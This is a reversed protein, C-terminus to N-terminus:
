VKWERERKDEPERRRFWGLFRYLPSMTHAESDFFVDLVHIAYRINDKEVQIEETKLCRCDWLNGCVPWVRQQSFFKGGDGQVLGRLKKRCEDWAADHPRLQALTRIDRYIASRDINATGRTALISCATFLNLPSHLYDIHLQLPMAENMVGNLAHEMTSIGAVYKSVLPVAAEHFTHNGLFQLCRSGHFVAFAIPIHKELLNGLMMCATDSKYSFDRTLDWHSTMFDVIAQLGRLSCASPAVTSLSHYALITDYRLGSWVSEMNLPPIIEPAAIDELVTIVAPADQSSFAQRHIWRVGTILSQCITTHSYDSMDSQRLAFRHLLFKIIAVFVRLSQSTERLSPDRVFMSFMCLIPDHIKDLFYPLADWFGLVSPSEFDHVLPFNPGQMLGTRSLTHLITSCLHLLFNKTHDDHDPDLPDSPLVRSEMM